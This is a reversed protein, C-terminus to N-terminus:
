LQRLWRLATPWLESLHGARRTQQAEDDIMVVADGDADFEVEVSGYATQWRFLLGGDALPFVDTDATSEAIASAVVPLAYEVIRFDVQDADETNPQSLLENLRLLIAELRHWGDVSVRSTGVIELGSVLGHASGPVAHVLVNRATHLSSSRPQWVTADSFARTSTLAAGVTAVSRETPDLIASASM